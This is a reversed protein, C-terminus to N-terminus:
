SGLQIIGQTSKYFLRYCEKQQLEVSYNGPSKLSKLNEQEKPM